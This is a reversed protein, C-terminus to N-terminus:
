AARIGLMNQEKRRANNFILNKYITDSTFLNKWVDLFRKLIRVLLTETHALAMSFSRM